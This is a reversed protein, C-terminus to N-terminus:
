IKAADARALEMADLLRRRMELAEKHFSSVEDTELVGHTNRHMLVYFYDKDPLDQIVTGVIAGDNSSYWEKEQSTVM